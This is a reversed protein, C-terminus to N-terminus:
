IYYMNETQDNAHKLLNGLTLSGLMEQQMDAVSTWAEVLARVNPSEVTASSVFREQPGEIAAMVEALTIEQPAGALEYGGAAGRTSTVLGASKLQLLIQVLFPLSIGHTGAIRRIQVPRGSGYSAALDLIAICAYETRASINM